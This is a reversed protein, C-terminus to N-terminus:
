RAPGVYGPYGAPTIRGWPDRSGKLLDRAIAERDIALNLARRVWPDTFPPKHTSV